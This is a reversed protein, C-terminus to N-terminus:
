VNEWSILFFGCMPELSDWSVNVDYGDGMLYDKFALLGRVTTEYAGKDNEPELMFGDFKAAVCFKGTTAADYVQGIILKHLRKMAEKNSPKYGGTFSDTPHTRLYSSVKSLFSSMVM